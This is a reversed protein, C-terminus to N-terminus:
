EKTGKLKKEILADLEKKQAILDDASEKAKKKVAINKQVANIEKSAQNVEFDMKVWDTYMQTVEIEVLLGRERQSERIEEANSGKSDISHLVDLTM